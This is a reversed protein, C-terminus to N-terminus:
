KAAAVFKGPGVKRFRAQDGRQKCERLIASSLTASPTKGESQWLGTALVREVMEKCNLPTGAEALAKAALNLLSHREPKAGPSGPEDTGRGAQGTTGKAARRGKKAEPVTVGEALNGNKVAAVTEAVGKNDAKAEDKEVVIPMTRKPWLGRLRQSSRIRVPKGSRLNVGDWGGHSNTKELRVPVVEGSVKAAYTQGLKVVNKKM